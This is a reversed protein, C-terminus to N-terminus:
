GQKNRMSWRFCVSLSCCASLSTIGIQKLLLLRSEVDRLGAPATLFERLAGGVQELLKSWFSFDSWRTPILWPPLAGLLAPLGAAFGILLLFLVLKQLFLSRKRFLIFLQSLGYILPILLPLIAMGAAFFASWSGMLIFDPRGLGSAGAYNEADSRATGALDASFEAASWSQSVDEGAFSQLALPYSYEFVGRVIRNEGGAEVTKGLVDIGGWLQWALASSIACGVSDTVGPATGTLYQAPWVLLANGSYSICDTNVRAHESSFTIKDERWFTPWFSAAESHEISYQRAGYATQGSIPQAFRLSVPPYQRAALANSFGVAQLALFLCWLVIDVLLAKSIGPGWVTAKQKTGTAFPLALTQTRQLRRCAVVKSNDQPKASSM